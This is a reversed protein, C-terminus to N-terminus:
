LMIKLLMVSCYGVFGLLASSAITIFNLGIANFFHNTIFLATMGVVLNIGFAKLERM